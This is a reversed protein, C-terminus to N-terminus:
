RTRASNAAPLSRSDLGPGRCSFMGCLGDGISAEFGARGLSEQNLVILGAESVGVNLMANRSVSRTSSLSNMNWHSSFDGDDPPDGPADEGGGDGGGGDPDEPNGTPADEGGGDGGGSDPGEPNGTPADEGDGNMANGPMRMGGMKQAAAIAGKYGGAARSPNFGNIQVDWSGDGKPKVSRVQFGLKQMESRILASQEKSSLTKAQAKVPARKVMRSKSIQSTRTKAEEALSVPVAIFCSLILITIIRFM